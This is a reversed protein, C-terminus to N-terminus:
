VGGPFYPPQHTITKTILLVELSTNNYKHKTNFQNNAYFCLISIPM